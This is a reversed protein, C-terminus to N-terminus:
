HISKGHKVERMEARRVDLAVKIDEQKEPVKDPKCKLAFAIRQKIRADM